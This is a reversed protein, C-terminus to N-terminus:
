QLELPVDEFHTKTNGKYHEPAMDPHMYRVMMIVRDEECDLCHVRHDFSGDWAIVKGEEWSYTKNAVYLKAGKLGSVGLHINLINNSPGSHTEVDTGKKMKIVMVQENQDSTWPLGPKSPLMKKLLACTKPFITECEDTFERKHYLLVRNWEGQAYLFRYADEFGSGEEDRLSRRIEDRITEFNEELANCIPLETSWNERPWIHQSRLGRVWIQPTHQFDDWPVAEGPAYSRVKGEWSMTALRTFLQKAEEVMGANKLKLTSVKGYLPVCRCELESKKDFDELCEPHRMLKQAYELGTMIFANDRSSQDFVHENTDLDLLLHTMNKLEWFDDSTALIDNICDLALQRNETDNKDSIYARLESVCPHRLEREKCHLERNAHTFLAFDERKEGSDGDAAEAEGACLRWSLIATVAASAIFTFGRGM